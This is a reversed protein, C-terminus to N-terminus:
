TRVFRQVINPAIAKSATASAYVNRVARNDVSRLGSFAFSIPSSADSAGAGAVVFQGSCSFRGPCRGPSPTRKGIAPKFPGSFGAGAGARQPQATEFCPGHHAAIGPRDGPTCEKAREPDDPTCCTCNRAGAEGATDSAVRTGRAAGGDNGASPM